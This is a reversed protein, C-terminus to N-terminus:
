LLKSLKEVFSEKRRYVLNEVLSKQLNVYRILPELIEMVAYDLIEHKLTEVAAKPEKDYIYVVGDKVEGSFVEERPFWKVDRLGLGLGYRQQLRRLEGRLKAEVSVNKFNRAKRRSGKPESMILTKSKKM